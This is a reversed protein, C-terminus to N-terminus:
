ILFKKFFEQIEGPAMGIAQAEQEIQEKAIASLNRSIEQSEKQHLLRGKIIYDTFASFSCPAVAELCCTLEQLFEKMEPSAGERRSRIFYCLNHLDIQWVLDVIFTGPAFALCTELSGGREKAMKIVTRAEEYFTYLSEEMQKPLWFELEGKPWVLQSKAARCRSFQQSLFFPLRLHFLFSVQEFPSTHAHRMLFRILRADEHFSKNSDGYSCRAGRAVSADSGLYDALILHGQGSLVPFIKGLMEDARSSRPRNSYHSM